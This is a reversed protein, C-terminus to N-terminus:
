NISLEVDPRYAIFETRIVSKSLTPSHEACVIRHSERIPPTTSIYHNHGQLKHRIVAAFLHDKM